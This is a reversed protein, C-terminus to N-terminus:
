EGLKKRMVEPTMKHSPVKMYLAEKSEVIIPDAFGQSKLYEVDLTEGMRGSLRRVPM